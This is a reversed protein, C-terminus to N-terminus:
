PESWPDVRQEIALASCMFFQPGKQQPLDEVGEAACTKYKLHSGNKSQVRKTSDLPLWTQNHSLPVPKHLHPKRMVNSLVVQTQISPTPDNLFFFFFLLRTIKYPPAYCMVQISVQVKQQLMTKWNEAGVLGVTWKQSCQIWYQFM